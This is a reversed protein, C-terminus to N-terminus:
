VYEPVSLGTVHLDRKRPPIVVGKLPAIGMYAIGWTETRRTNFWEVEVLYPMVDEDVGRTNRRIRVDVAFTVGCVHMCGGKWVLVGKKDSKRNVRTESTVVSGNKRGTVTHYGTMMRLSFQSVSAFLYYEKPYNEVLARTRPVIKIPHKYYLLETPVDVKSKTKKNKHLPLSIRALM